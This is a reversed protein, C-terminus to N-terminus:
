FGPCRVSVRSGRATTLVFFLMGPGADTLPEFALENLGQNLLLQKKSLLLGNGSYVELASPLDHDSDAIINVSFLGNAPYIWMSPTESIEDPPIHLITKLLHIDGNYDVQSLRYYITSFNTSFDSLTYDTQHSTTGQGSITGLWRFMIGDTSKEILFYDNGIESATSWRLDTKSKEVKVADFDILEVPLPLPARLCITLDGSKVTWFENGANTSCIIHVQYTGNDPVQVSNLVSFVSNSNTGTFLSSSYVSGNVFILVLTSDDSDLNGSQNVRIAFDVAQPAGDSSVGVNFVPTYFRCKSNSVKWGSPNVTGCEVTYGSPVNWDLTYSSLCSSYSTLVAAQLLLLLSVFLLIRASGNSCDPVSNCPKGEPQRWQLLSLCGKFM